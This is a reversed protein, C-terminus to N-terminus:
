GIPTTQRERVGPTPPRGLALLDALEHRGSAHMRDIFARLVHATARADALARHTPDTPAEFYRALTGLRLNPLTGAPLLARALALTDVVRFDPWAHDCAISATRLFGVDFPANHAVLIADEAFHTFAPLVLRLPPADAVLDDSIGTLDTIFEPIPVGPAVLTAFEGLRDAGRVRVAAIETIRAEQPDLGTTELDVVTFVQREVEDRIARSGPM